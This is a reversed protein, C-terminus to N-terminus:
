SGTAPFVATVVGTSATNTASASTGAVTFYNAGVGTFTYNPVATLTITATYVQSAAFNGGVLAPSWSVTGTYEATPTITTVASAGKVPATVGPVAPIDVTLASQNLAGQSLTFTMNWTASDGQANNQLDMSTYGPVTSKTTHNEVFNYEVMFNGANAGHAIDVLNMITVGSGWASMLEYAGPVNAINVTTNSLETVNAPDVPGVGATGGWFYSAGTSLFYSEGRDLSGNHNADLWVAVNLWNGLEGSGGADGTKTRISTPTGETETISSNTITLKGDLTGGNTINWNAATGADGPQRNALNITGTTGGNFNLVLTGASISNSTAEIDQFYAFTGVSVTAIIIILAAGLGLIKLM